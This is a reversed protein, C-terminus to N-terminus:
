PPFFIEYKYRFQVNDLYSFFRLNFDNYSTGSHLVDGRFLLCEGYNIHVNCKYDAIYM